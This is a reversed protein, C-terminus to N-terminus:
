VVCLLAVAVSIIGPQSSLGAEISKVCATYALSMIEACSGECSVYM